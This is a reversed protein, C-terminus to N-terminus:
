KDQSHLWYVIVSVATEHIIMTTRHKKGGGKATIWINTKLTIAFTDLKIKISAM